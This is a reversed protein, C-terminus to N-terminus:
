AILYEHPDAVGALGTVNIKGIVCGTLGERQGERTWRIRGGHTVRDLPDHLVWVITIAGIGCDRIRERFERWDRECARNSAVGVAVGGIRHIAVRYINLVRAM